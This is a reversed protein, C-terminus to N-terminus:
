RWAFRPQDYHAVRTHRGFLAVERFQYLIAGTPAFVVDGHFHMSLVEQNGEAARQLIPSDRRALESFAFPQILAVEAPNAKLARWDVEAWLVVPTIRYGSRTAYDDLTGLVAAEGLTLNVEERLERLAAEVATEGPDVRGGPLAWQNGHARLSGSRRTIVLAARGGDRCVVAAVAAARRDGAPLSRVPFQRLQTALRQQLASTHDYIGM